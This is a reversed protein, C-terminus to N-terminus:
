YTRDFLRDKNKWLANIWKQFRMKYKEDEIYNGRIKDTVPITEVIVNITNIRGCLFDWFSIKGDPYIITVNIISTLREGMATLVFGAGGAKPPLLHKYPSKRSIRKSETFRTGEVFNMISVPTSKFKSCANRTIEIDKGRLHPHKALFSPSYRKMFPFDLAWWAIGLFPVWILEKKLFFRLFPIRRNFIKQLVIIDVWSQHNSLVLYWENMSLKKLGSVNWHINKTWRINFNNVSIWAEGIFISVRGWVNRWLSLPILLKIIAVIILLPIWFLSNASLLIMSFFGHMHSGAIRVISEKNKFQRFTKKRSPAKNKKV